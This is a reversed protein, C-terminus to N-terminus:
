LVMLAQLFRSSHSCDKKPPLRQMQETNLLATFLTFSPNEKHTSTFPQHTMLLKAASCQAIMEYFYKQQRLWVTVAPTQQERLKNKAAGGELQEDQLTCLNRNIEQIQAATSLGEGEQQNSMFYKRSKDATLNGLLRLPHLMNRQAKAAGWREAHIDCSICSHSM